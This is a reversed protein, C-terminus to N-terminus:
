NKAYLVYATVIIKAAKSSTNRISVIATKASSLYFDEICCLTHQTGSSTANDVHVGVIGLATYGSKTVTVSINSTSSAAISQNDKSKNEVLLMHQFTAHPNEKVETAM